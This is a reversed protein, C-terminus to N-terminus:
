RLYSTSIEGSRGLTPSKTKRKIPLAFAEKEVVKLPPFYHRNRKYPKYRGRQDRPKFTLVRISELLQLQVLFIVTLAVLVLCFIIALFSIM